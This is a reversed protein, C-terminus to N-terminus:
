SKQRVTIFGNTREIYLNRGAKCQVGKLQSLGNGTLLQFM